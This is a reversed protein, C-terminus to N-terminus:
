GRKERARKKREKKGENKKKLNHFYHLIVTFLVFHYSAYLFGRENGNKRGIETTGKRGTEGGKREGERRKKRREKM